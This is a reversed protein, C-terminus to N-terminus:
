TMEHHQWAYDLPNTAHAVITKEEINRIAKNCADSLQRAATILEEVVAM